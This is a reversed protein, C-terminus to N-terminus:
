VNEIFIENPLNRDQKHLYGGYEGPFCVYCRMTENPLITFTDSNTDQRFGKLLGERLLGNEQDEQFNASVQFQLKKESTNCFALYCVLTVKGADEDVEFTSFYSEDKVLQVTQSTPKTRYDFLCLAAVILVSLMLLVWIAKRRKEMHEGRFAFYRNKGKRREFASSGGGKKERM